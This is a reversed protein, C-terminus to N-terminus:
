FGTTAEIVLMELEEWDEKWRSAQRARQPARFYEKEPSGSYQSPRPTRPGPIAISHSRIRGQVKVLQPTGNQLHVESLDALLGLCSLHTKKTPMLMNTIHLQLAPSIFAIDCLTFQLSYISNIYLVYMRKFCVSCWRPVRVNCGQGNVDADVYDGLM